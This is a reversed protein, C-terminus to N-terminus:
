TLLYVLKEFAVVYLELVEVVVGVHYRGVLQGCLWNDYFL